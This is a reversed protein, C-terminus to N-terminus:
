KNKSNKIKKNEEKKINNLLDEAEVTKFNEKLSFIYL